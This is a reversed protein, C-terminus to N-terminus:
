LIAYFSLHLLVMCVHANAAIFPLPITITTSAAAGTSNTIVKIDPLPVAITADAASITSHIAFTTAASSSSSHEEDRHQHQQLNCDLLVEEIAILAEAVTLANTNTPATRKSDSTM